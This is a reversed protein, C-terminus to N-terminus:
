LMNGDNLVVFITPNSANAEYDVDKVDFSRERLGKHEHHHAAYSGGKGSQWCYLRAMMPVVVAKKTRM